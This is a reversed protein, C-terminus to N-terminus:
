RGKTRTRNRRMRGQRCQPTCHGMCNMTTKIRFYTMEYHMIIFRDEWLGQMPATSSPGPGPPGMLPHSNATSSALNPAPAQAVNTWGHEFGPPAPSSSASGSSENETEKLYDDVFKELWEDGRKGLVTIVGKPMRVVDVSAQRKEQMLIPAALAFDIISLIFLIRSVVDYRRM